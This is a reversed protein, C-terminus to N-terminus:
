ILKKQAEDEKQDEVPAKYKEILEKIGYEILGIPLIPFLGPVCFLIIKALKDIVWTLGAVAYIPIAVIKQWTKVDEPNPGMYHWQGNNKFRTVGQFYKNGYFFVHDKVSSIKDEIWDIAEYGKRGSYTRDKLLGDVLIMNYGGLVYNCKSFVADKASKM